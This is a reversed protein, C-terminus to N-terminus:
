NREFDVKIKKFFSLQQNAIFDYTFKNVCEKAKEAVELSKEYNRIVHKVIDVCLRINGIEVQFYNGKLYYYAPLSYAVIPTGVSAAEMLSIGWGEEYSLFLFIRSSRLLEFKQDETVFGNIVVNDTLNSNSIIKRIRNVYRPRGKGAIIIRLNYSDEEKILKAVKLLDEIGKHNEVRGIYCIDFHKNVKNENSVNFHRNPLAILNPFVRINPLDLTNPNDLFIPIDLIKAIYLVFKTYLVNLLVRFLGRRLPHLFFSPTIHHFYIAMPKNYKHSLRFAILIDPPYPTESLLIDCKQVEKMRDLKLFLAMITSRVVSGLRFEKIKIPDFLLVNIGSSRWSSMLWEFHINGGGSGYRHSFGVVLINNLTTRM